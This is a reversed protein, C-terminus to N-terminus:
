KRWIRIVFKRRSLYGLLIKMNTSLFYVPKQDFVCFAVIDPFDDNSCLIAAKTTGVLAEYQEKNSPNDIMIISPLGRGSSQCVRHTSCKSKTDIKAGITPKM